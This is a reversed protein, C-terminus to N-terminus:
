LGTLTNHIISDTNNTLSNFWTVTDRSQAEYGITSTYDAGFYSYQSYNYAMSLILCGFAQCGVICHAAFFKACYRCSCGDCKRLANIVITIFVAYVLVLAGLVSVLLWCYAILMPITNSIFFPIFVLCVGVNLVITTCLLAWKFKRSSRAGSNKKDEQKNARYNNVIQIISEVLVAIVSPLVYNHLQYGFANYCRWESQYASSSCNTQKYCAFAFHGVSVLSLVFDLVSYKPPSVGTQTPGILAIELTIYIHKKKGKCASEILSNLRQLLQLFLLELVILWYPQIIFGGFSSLVPNGHEAYSSSNSGM